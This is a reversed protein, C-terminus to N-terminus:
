WMGGGREVEICHNKALIELIAFNVSDGGCNGFVLSALNSTSLSPPITSLNSFLKVKVTGEGPRIHFSLDRLLYLPL